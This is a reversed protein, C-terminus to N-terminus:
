IHEGLYKIPDDSIVMHQLHYEWPAGGLWLIGDSEFHNPASGMMVKSGDGWLAKAFSHNYIIEVISHYIFSKLSGAQCTMIHITSGSYEDYNFVASTDYGGGNWGNDVAKKIANALIEKNTM